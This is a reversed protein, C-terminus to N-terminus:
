ILPVFEKEAPEPIFLANFLHEFLQTYIREYLSDSLESTLIDHLQPRLTREMYDNMNDRMKQLLEERLEDKINNLLREYLEPNLREYLEKKAQELLAFYDITNDELVVTDLISLAGAMYSDVWQLWLQIDCQSPQKVHQPQEIHPTVVYYDLAQVIEQILSVFEQVSGQMNYGRLHFMYRLLARKGEGEELNAHTTLTELREIYKAIYTSFRKDASLLLCPPIFNTDFSFVGGEVMFRVVPFLDEKEIENIPRISFEYQPRVFPVGDKEYEVQGQGVGVALYYTSGYLMPIPLSVSEDVDIIRGSSLVALCKFREIEFKNKVFMGENCFPAGPLLGMRNGGLAARLAMQQRFDLNEDMNLFTQSTLEMGPMWNIRANVDM